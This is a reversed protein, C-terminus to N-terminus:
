PDQEEESLGAAQQRQLLTATAHPLREERPQRTSLKAAANAALDRTERDITANWEQL